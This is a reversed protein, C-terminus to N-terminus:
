AEYEYEIFVTIKLIFFPEDAASPDIEVSNIGQRILSCVSSNSSGFFTYMPYYDVQEFWSNGIPQGNLSVDYYFLKNGTTEKYLVMGIYVSTARLFRQKPAFVFAFSRHYVCVGYERNDRMRSADLVGIEVADTYTTKDQAFIKPAYYVVALTTVLSLAWTVVIVFIVKKISFAKESM